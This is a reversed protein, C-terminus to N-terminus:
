ETVTVWRSGHWELVDYSPVSADGKADFTVPGIISDHDSTKLAAAVAEPALSGKENAAGAWLEVAARARLGAGDPMSADRGPLEGSTPAAIRRAPDAPALARAHEAASGAAAALEDNAMVDTGLLPTTLGAARLQRLISAAEIPFGAFLIAACQWDRIRAVLAGFDKEGAVITLLVPEAGAATLAKVARESISRAYATRDSVVAVRRGPYTRALYEGAFTGQADDRGALRLITPGAHSDTLAKHRTEIAIFLLKAAGYVRAAAIAGGACPHGIILAPREAAVGTAAAAAATGNCGDDIRRVVVKEGAVGGRANLDRAAQEVADAIRRGVAAHPGEFPYPVAILADALAVSTAPLLAWGALWLLARLFM